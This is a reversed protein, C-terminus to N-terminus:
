SKDYYAGKQVITGKAYKIYVYVGVLPTEKNRDNYYVM